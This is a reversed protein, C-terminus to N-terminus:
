AAKLAEALEALESISVPKRRCAAIDLHMDRAKSQLRELRHATIMIIALEHRECLQAAVDLGDQADGLKWDSILVEPNLQEAVVAAEHINSAVAVVHGRFELLKQMAFRAAPDDEVVLIRLSEHRAQEKLENM